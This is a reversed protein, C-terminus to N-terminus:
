STNERETEISAFSYTQTGTVSYSYDINMSNKMVLNVAALPSM